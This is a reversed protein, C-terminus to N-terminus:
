RRTMAGGPGGGFTRATDTPARSTATAAVYFPEHASAAMRIQHADEDHRMMTKVPDDDHLKIQEDLWAVYAAHHAEQKARREAAAVFVQGDALTAKYTTDSEDPHIRVLEVLYRARAVHAAFIASLKALASQTLADQGKLLHSHHAWQM